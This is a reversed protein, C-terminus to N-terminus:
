LVKRIDRGGDGTFSPFNLRADVDYATGPLPNHLTWENCHPNPIPRYLPAFSPHGSLYSMWAMPTLHPYKVMFAWGADTSKRYTAVNTCDLRRVFDYFRLDGFQKECDRAFQATEEPLGLKNRLSHFDTTVALCLHHQLQLAWLG